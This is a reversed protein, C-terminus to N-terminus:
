LEGRSKCGKLVARLVMKAQGLGGDLGVGIPTYSCPGLLVGDKGMCWVQVVGGSATYSGRCVKGEFTIEFDKREAQRRM